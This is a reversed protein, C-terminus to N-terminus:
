RTTSPGGTRLGAFLPPIGIALVVVGIMQVMTALRVFWDDTDFASLFWTFGIWAWVVAFMVFAFGVLGALLHGHAIQQAFQSGSFAVVVTLDYLLKLPTAARHAEHPARGAM